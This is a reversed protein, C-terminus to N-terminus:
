QELAQAVDNMENNTLNFQQVNEDEGLNNFEEEENELRDNNNLYNNYQHQTKPQNQMQQNQMQQNQMQQNQMQQNQMQQNQMQQTQMQQQLRNNENLLQENQQKLTTLETEKMELDKSLESSPKFEQHLGTFDKLKSKLLNKKKYYFVVAGVAVLLLLIYLKKDYLRSLFSNCSVLTDTPQLASPIHANNSVLPTVVNDVALKLNNEM